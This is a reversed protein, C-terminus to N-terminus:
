EEFNSRELARRHTLGKSVKGGAYVWRDFESAAGAYNGSNLKKLLTSKSFAGAGINFALSMIAKFQGDSLPVKVVPCLQLYLKQLDDALLEEAQEQTVVDGPAVGGTHGYGITWVGASCRYAELDCGEFDKILQTAIKPDHERIDKM